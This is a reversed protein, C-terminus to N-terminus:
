KNQADVICAVKERLEDYIKPDIKSGEELEFITNYLLEDIILDTDLLMPKNYTPILACKMDYYSNMQSMFDKFCISGKKYDFSYTYNCEIGKLNAFEILYIIITDNEFIINTDIYINTKM